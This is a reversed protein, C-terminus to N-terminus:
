GRRRDTGGFGCFANTPKKLKDSLDQGEVYKSVYFCPFEVSGGVDFVPVIGPHDLNAVTRAETLYTEANAQNEMLWRHPVKVAVRRDLQDDRALYVTGFGGRGLIREIRYRGVSSPIEAPSEPIEAPQNEESRTVDDCEFDTM